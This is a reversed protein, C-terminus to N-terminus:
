SPIFTFKHLVDQIDYDGNQQSERGEGDSGFLNGVLAAVFGNLADEVRWVAFARERADDDDM